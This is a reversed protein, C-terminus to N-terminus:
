KKGAIRYKNLGSIVSRPYANSGAAVNGSGTGYSVSYDGISESTVGKNGAQNRAFLNYGIMNSCIYPLDKFFDVRFITINSDTSEANLSENVTIKTSEVSAITYYDDNWKSGRIIITDGDIFQETFIDGTDSNTIESATSLTWGNDWFYATSKIFYNKCYLNIDELVIPILADIQTDYTTSTINLFSKVETKNTLVSTSM